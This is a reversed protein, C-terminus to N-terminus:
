EVIITGTDSPKLHNHYNWSGIKNFTFNWSNGPQIGVCSDFAAGNIDPCHEGLSTGGYIIHSPHFDSATWMTRSSENKFTVTAGLNINLINLLYGGDSYIIINEVQETKQTGQDTQELPTSTTTSPPTQNPMEQNSPPPLLDQNLTSTGPNKLLFYGGVAVVAIVIFGTIIKNM